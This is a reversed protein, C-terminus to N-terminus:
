TIEGIDSIYWQGCQLESLRTGHVCAFCVVVALM